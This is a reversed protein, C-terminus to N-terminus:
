SLGRRCRERFIILLWKRARKEEEENNLEWRLFSPFFAYMKGTKIILRPRLDNYWYTAWRIGIENPDFLPGEYMRLAAFRICLSRPGTGGEIENFMIKFEKEQEPTLAM